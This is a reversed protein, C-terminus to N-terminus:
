LGENMIASAVLSKVLKERFEKDEISVGLHRSTSNRMQVLAALPGFLQIITVRADQNKPVFGKKKGTELFKELCKLVNSYAVNYESEAGDFGQELQQLFLKILTAQESFFLALENLFLELCIKFESQTEFKHLFRKARMLKDHALTKLAAVLLGEKSGFYYSIMSVNVGSKEMIESVSTGEYGKESFLSIATSILDDKSSM